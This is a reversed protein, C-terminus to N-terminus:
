PRGLRLTLVFDRDPDLDGVNVDTPDPRADLAEGDRLEVDLRYKGAPVKVTYGGNAATSTEFKQGTAENVATVKRGTVPESDGSARVTGAITGGVGEPADRTDVVARGHTVCGTSLILAVALMSLKM